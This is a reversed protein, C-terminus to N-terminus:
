KEYLIALNESSTEVDSVVSYKVSYKLDENLIKKIKYDRIHAKPDVGGYYEPTPHLKLYRTFMLDDRNEKDNSYINFDINEQIYFEGDIEILYSTIIDKKDLIQHKM